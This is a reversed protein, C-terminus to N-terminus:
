GRLTRSDTVHVVMGLLFFVKFDNWLEPEIYDQVGCESPSVSMELTLSCDVSSSKLRLNYLWM